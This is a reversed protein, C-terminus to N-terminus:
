KKVYPTTDITTGCIHEPSQSYNVYEYIGEGEAYKLLFKYNDWFEKNHKYDNTMVHALEHLIIFFMTNHKEKIVKDTIPDTLCINIREGKNVNYALIGKKLDPELEEINGSWNEILKIIRKDKAYESNKLSEILLKTRKDLVDIIKQKSEVDKENDNRLTYEKGGRTHRQLGSYCERQYM